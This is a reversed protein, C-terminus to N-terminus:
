SQLGFDISMTYYHTPALQARKILARLLSDSALGSGRSYIENERQRGAAAKVGSAKEEYTTARGRGRAKITM